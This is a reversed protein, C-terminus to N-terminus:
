WRTSRAGRRRGAREEVTVKGDESDAPLLLQGAFVYLVAELDCDSHSTSTASRSTPRAQARQFNTVNGNHAISIGLPFDITFPQVDTDEGGTGM